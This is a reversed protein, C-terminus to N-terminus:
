PEVGQQTEATTDAVAGAVLEALAAPAQQPLAHGTAPLAAFRRRSPQPLADWVARSQAPPTVIDQEGVVVTVPLALNRAAAALAGSALMRVAQAYGPLRVRAMGEAVGAVLAPNAAPDHILRPARARAFAEPGLRELDALRSAGAEPLAAGPRVGGGQACSVLILGAVRDPHHAAFSAAILTGLSHGLLHFRDLRLADALRALAEAYHVAVPWDDPLPASAGYGPAWWSIPRITEPLRAALADFSRADSGIGHLCVLPAGTGPRARWALGATLDDHMAAM